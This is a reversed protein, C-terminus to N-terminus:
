AKKKKALFSPPKRGQISYRARILMVTFDLYGSGRM